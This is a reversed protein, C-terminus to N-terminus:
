LSNLDGGEKVKDMIRKINEVSFINTKPIHLVRTSDNNPVEEQGGLYSWYACKKLMLYDVGQDIWEEKTEPLCLVIIIRPAGVNTQCILKNRAKNKLDYSIITGNDRTNICAKLQIDLYIGTSIINDGVKSVESLILDIGWDRRHVAIEYGAMSCITEVYAISLNEEIIKDPLM